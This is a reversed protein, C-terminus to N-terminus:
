CLSIATKYKSIGRSGKKIHAKRLKNLDQVLTSICIFCLKPHQTRWRYALKHTVSFKQKRERYDGWDIVMHARGGNKFLRRCFGTDLLM